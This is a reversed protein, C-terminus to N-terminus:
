HESWNFNQGNESFKFIERLLIKLNKLRWTYKLIKGDQEPLKPLLIQKKRLIDEQKM